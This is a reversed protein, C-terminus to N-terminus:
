GLAELDALASEWQALLTAARQAAEEHASALAHVEEPREYVAPDSLRRHLEAVEADAASWARELDAM